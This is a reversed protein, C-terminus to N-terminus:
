RPGKGVGVPAVPQANELSREIPPDDLLRLNPWRGIWRGYVRIKEAAIAEQAEADLGEMLPSVKIVELITDIPLEQDNIVHKALLKVRM